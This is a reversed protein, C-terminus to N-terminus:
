PLIFYTMMVSRLPYRWRSCASAFLAEYVLSGLTENLADHLVSLTRPDYVEGNRAHAEIQIASDITFNANPVFKDYYEWPDHHPDTFKLRLTSLTPPPQEFPQVFGYGYFLDMKIELM